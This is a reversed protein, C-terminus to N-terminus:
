SLIRILQERTETTRLYTFGDETKLTLISGMTPDNPHISTVKKILEIPVSLTGFQITTVELETMVDVM